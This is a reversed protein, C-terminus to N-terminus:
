RGERSAREALAAADRLLRAVRERAAADPASAAAILIEEIEGFAGGIAAFGYTASSGRLRHAARRVEEWSCASVLSDIEAVKQALREGFEIRAAALQIELSLDVREAMM